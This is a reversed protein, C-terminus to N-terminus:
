RANEIAERLKAGREYQDTGEEAECMWDAAEEAANFLAIFYGKPRRGKRKLIVDVWGETQTRM